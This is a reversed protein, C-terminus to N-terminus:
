SSRGHDEEKGAELRVLRERLMLGATANMECIAALKLINDELRDARVKNMWSTFVAVCLAFLVLYDAM